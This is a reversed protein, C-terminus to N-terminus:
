GKVWLSEIMSLAKEVQKQSLEIDKPKNKMAFINTMKKEEKYRFKLSVYYEYISKRIINEALKTKADEDIYLSYLLQAESHADPRGESLYKLYASMLIRHDLNMKEEETYIINLYEQVYSELKIDFNDESMLTNLRKILKKFEDNFDTDFFWKQIFDMMFIQELENQNLTKEKYKDKLILEIPTTEAQIDSLLTRWCIYEYSLSGGVNRTKAEAKALIAKIASPNIYIHEDNNYFKYVIREFEQKSIDNFGFCDLLGYVDSVVIAVIQISEKETDESNKQRSFIIAQNGHGDPFSVYSFYPKSSLLSKYFAVANDERVGAIKLKSISKKILSLTYEDDVFDMAETLTHLALQSKTEGLIEISIKGLESTPTYLILPNIINALADSSYDDGLSQVLIKRDNDSLSSIFDLFDIQAEPNIIAAQLLRKTDADIVEDPNEFYEDLKEYEVKNGMDKLVNLIIAKTADAVSPTKLVSWLADEIESQDCLKLILFCVMIAKQENAKTLEKVLVELISKKDEQVILTELEKEINVSELNVQLKSLVTLIEAKIQLKNLQKAM